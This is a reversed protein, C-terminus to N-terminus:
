MRPGNCLYQEMAHWRPARFDVRLTGTTDPKQDWRTRWVLRGGLHGAVYDETVHDFRLPGVVTALQTGDPAHLGAEAELESRGDIDAYAPAVDASGEFGLAAVVVYETRHPSLTDQIWVHLVSGCRTHYAPRHAERSTDDTWVFRGSGPTFSSKAGETQRACAAGALLLGVLAHRQYSRQPPAHV